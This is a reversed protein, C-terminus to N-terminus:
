RCTLQADNVREMPIDFEWVGGTGRGAYTKGAHLVECRGKARVAFRLPFQGAFSFRVREPNEYHWALLPLNAYELAPRPDRESRLALTAVPKSLHVYRGQPLDRVGAVGDSQLLDPWGMDADLRVTRLGDLAKLQWAGDVRRALSASHLGHVREVYDSM